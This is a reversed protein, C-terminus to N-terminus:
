EFTLAGALHAISTNVSAIAAVAECLAATKAFDGIKKSLM